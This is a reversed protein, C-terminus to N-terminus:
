GVARRTTDTLEWDVEADAEPAPPPMGRLRRPALVPSSRAVRRAVLAPPRTASTTM